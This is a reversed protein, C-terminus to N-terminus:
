PSRTVIANSVLPRHSTVTAMSSSRPFIPRCRALPTRPGFVGSGNWFFEFFCVM